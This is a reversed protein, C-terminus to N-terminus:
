PLLGRFGYDRFTGSWIVDPITGTEDILAFLGPQGAMMDLQTRTLSVTMIAPSVFGPVAGGLTLPIRLAGTNIEFFVIAGTMNRPTVGDPGTFAISM